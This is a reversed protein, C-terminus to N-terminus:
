VLIGNGYLIKTDRQILYNFMESFQINKITM